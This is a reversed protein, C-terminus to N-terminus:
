KKSEREVEIQFAVFGCGIVILAGALVCYGPHWGSAYIGYGILGTGGISLGFALAETM